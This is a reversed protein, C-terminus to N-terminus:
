HVAQSFIIGKGFSWCLPLTSSLPGSFHPLQAHIVEWSVFATQVRQVWSILNILMQECPCRFSRGWSSSSSVLIKAAQKRLCTAPCYRLLMNPSQRWLVEDSIPPLTAGGFFSSRLRTCSWVFSAQWEALPCFFLCVFPCCRVCTAAFIKMTYDGLSPCCPKHSM